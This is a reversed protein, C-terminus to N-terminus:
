IQAQNSTRHGRLLKVIKGLIANPGREWEKDLHYGFQGDGKQGIGDSVPAMEAVLEDGFEEIKETVNSMLFYLM